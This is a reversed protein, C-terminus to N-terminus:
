TTSLLLISDYLHHQHHQHHAGSTADLSFEWCGMRSICVDIFFCLTKALVFMDNM